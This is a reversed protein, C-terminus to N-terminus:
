TDTNNAANDLMDCEEESWPDNELTMDFSEEEPFIVHCTSCAIGGGCIGYGEEEIMNDMVTDLISDGSRAKVIKSNGQRDIFEVDIKNKSGFMQSSVSSLNLFRRSLIFGSFGIRSIM